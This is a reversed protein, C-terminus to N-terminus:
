GIPVRHVLPGLLKAAVAEGGDQRALTATLGLRFPALSGEAIFRYGPAPLHHCEDCVLLGFKDGHFEVQAAASDYTTVTLERRDKEGGGVIGVPRDLHEALVGQWQVMLQLTPVVVLTPRKVKAIALVAVFTKGAGTPLEVIGRGGAKWWADFADKQHPFPTQATRRELALPEFQRAKDDFPVNADRLRLVIERYAHGAARHTDTREDHVFHSGVVSAAAETMVPAVLTGHQFHLQIM